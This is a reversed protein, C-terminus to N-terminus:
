TKEGISFVTSHITKAHKYLGATCVVLLVVFMFFCMLIYAPVPWYGPPNMAVKLKVERKTRCVLHLFLLFMSNPDSEVLAMSYHWYM